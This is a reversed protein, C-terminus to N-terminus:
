KKEEFYGSAPLMEPTNRNATARMAVTNVLPLTNLGPSSTISRPSSQMYLFIGVVVLLILIVVQWGKM